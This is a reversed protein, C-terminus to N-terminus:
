QQAPNQPGDIVYPGAFTGYYTEQVPGMNGVITYNVGVTTLNDDTTNLLFSTFTYAPFPTLSGGEYMEPVITQGEPISLSYGNRTGKVALNKVVFTISPMKEAFKAQYFIVDAKTFGDKLYVRYRVDKNTFSEGTSQTRITTNGVYVADRSFTKIRYDYNATYQMVLAPYFVSPYDSIIPDVNPVLTNVIYSTYGSLNNIVTSNDNYIGDKFKTVEYLQGNDTYAQVTFPMASTAFNLKGYGLSLDSTQVSMNGDYTYYTLVYTGETVFSVDSAPIVLNCTTFTRNQYNNEPDNDLNCSSLSMLAAASMLISLSKLKM